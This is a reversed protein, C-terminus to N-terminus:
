REEWFADPITESESSGRAAQSARSPAEIDGASALPRPTSEDGGPQVRGPPGSTVVDVAVIQAEFAARAELAVAALPSGPVKTWRHVLRALKDARSEGKRPQAECEILFQGDLEELSLLKLEDISLTPSSILSLLREELLRLRRERHGM